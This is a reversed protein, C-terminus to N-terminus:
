IEPRKLVGIRILNIVDDNYNKIEDIIIKPFNLCNQLHKFFDINDNENKNKYIKMKNSHNSSNPGNLLFYIFDHQTFIDDNHMYNNKKNDFFIKVHGINHQYHFIIRDFDRSYKPKDKNKNYSKGFNYYYIKMENQNVERILKYKEIEDNKLIDNTNSHDYKIEIHINKIKEIENKNLVFTLKIDDNEKFDMPYNNIINKTNDNFESIGFKFLIKKMLKILRTKGVSKTGILLTGKADTDFNIECNEEYNQYKKIFISELKM